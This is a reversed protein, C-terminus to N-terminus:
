TLNVQSMNAGTYDLKTDFYGTLFRSENSGGGASFDVPPVSM